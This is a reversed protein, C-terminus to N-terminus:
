VIPTEVWTINIDSGSANSAATASAVSVVSGPTIVAKGDFNYHMLQNSTTTVAGMTGIIMWRTPTGSHTFASYPVGVGRLNSNLLGAQPTGATTFTGKATLVATSVYLGYTDVVTTALVLGIDLDVLELLRGSGVPNYLSCVSVLGSAVVPITVATVNFSYLAGRAAANFYKGHVESVLLESNRGQALPNYSNDPQNTTYPNVVNGTLNINTDDSM